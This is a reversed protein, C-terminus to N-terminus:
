QRGDQEPLLPTRTTVFTPLPIRHVRIRAIVLRAARVAFDHPGSGGISHILNAPSSGALSPPWVARRVSSIVYLGYLWQAPFAPQEPQVQTAQTRLTCERRCPLGAPAALMRHEGRGRSKQPADIM